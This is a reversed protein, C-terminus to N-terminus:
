TFERRRYFLIYAASSQIDGVNAPQVSSDDFLNWEGSMGNEDWRQAYATYHGFGMRGYHNVVAFLDYHAPLSADVFPKGGEVPEIGHATLPDMDLNELPFDVFTDLKDRRFGHRFEFRKLHVVLINPLRWLKITKLARVHNKCKSCYWMNHEDLREPRSFSSFCQKLTVKNQNQILRQYERRVQQCSPHQKIDIFRDVDIVRGEEGNPNKWELELLLYSERAEDGLWAGLSISSDRQLISTGDGAGGPASRVVPRGHGDVLRITLVDEPRFKGNADITSEWTYNELPGKSSPVVMRRVLSWIADYLDTCKQDQSLSTMIPVGMNERDYREEDDVQGSTESPAEQFVVDENRIEHKRSLLVQNIIVHVSDKSDIPAMEYALIDPYRTLLVVKDNESLVNTIHNHEVGALILNSALVGSLESLSKVFESIFSQRQILVNFQEPRRNGNAFHVIVPQLLPIDQTPQPIELSVHNFADFAVSVRDCQPCVCTSQFQGYFSDLVLSNNRKKHADWAEASAIAMNDVNTVDPMEVYPAKRVRNLDEHLADLLYTLFEQSDHQLCGAFRPAFQAIARKLAVPSTARIGPKMWFDKITTEYALALKGGTGLPNESNLDAKFEGSLFFRTLPTAHSLSQLSSNMFCTNGLQNLGVGGMFDRPLMAEADKGEVNSSRIAKCTSKHFLWHSLQCNRDCYQVVLCHKCKKVAGPARCANCCSSLKQLSSTCGNTETENLTPSYLGIKEKNTTRRCISPTVEGYWSRLANYAERPILEFHYGRVLNPQLLPPQHSKMSSTQQHYWQQHFKDSPKLLLISNDIIGPPDVIEEEDSDDSSEDSNGIVDEFTYARPKNPVVAGPPFFNLVRRIRDPTNSENYRGNKTKSEGHRMMQLYFFDVYRCWQVWWDWDLLFFAEGEPSPPAGGNRCSAQLMNQRAMLLRMIDKKQQAASARAAEPRSKQQQAVTPSPNMNNITNISEPTPKEVRKKMLGASSCDNSGEEELLSDPPLASKLGQRREEKRSLRRHTKELRDLIKRCETTSARNTAKVKEPTSADQDLREKDLLGLAKQLDNMAPVLFDKISVKNSDWDTNNEQLDQFLGEISSARRM